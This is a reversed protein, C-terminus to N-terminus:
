QRLAFNWQVSNDSTSTCALAAGVVTLPIDTGSKVSTIAGGVGFGVSSLGALEGGSLKTALSICAKKPLSNFQVGFTSADAVVVSVSGATRTSWPHNLIGTAAGPTVRMEKPFVDQADLTATLSTGAASSFGSIRTYVQRTNQVITQIQQTAQYQHVNEYVVGVVVWVAAVIIAFVGLVVVTEVLTLGARASLRLQKQM